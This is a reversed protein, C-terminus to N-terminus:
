FAMSDQSIQCFLLIQTMCSHFRFLIYNVHGDVKVSTISTQLSNMLEICYCCSPVICAGLKLQPSALTTPSTYSHVAEIKQM